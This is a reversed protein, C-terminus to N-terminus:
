AGASRSKFDFWKASPDLRFENTMFHVNDVSFCINENPDFGGFVIKTESLSAMKEVYYKVTDRIHKVCGFGWTGSMARETRYEKLWNMTMLAEKYAIEPHKAKLDIFFPVVASPPVGYHEIFRNINEKHKVTSQRMKDFHVYTLGVYLLDPATLIDISGWIQDHRNRRKKTVTNNQPLPQDTADATDLSDVVAGCTTSHSDSYSERQGRGGCLGGRRRIGLLSSHSTVAPRSTQVPVNIEIPVGLPSGSKRIQGRGDCM